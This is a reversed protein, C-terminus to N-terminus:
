GSAPKVAKGASLRMARESLRMARESPREGKAEGEHPGVPGGLKRWTACDVYADGGGRAPPQLTVEVDVDEVLERLREFNVLENCDLRLDNVAKVVIWTKFPTPATVWHGLSNLAQVTPYTTLPGRFTISKKM